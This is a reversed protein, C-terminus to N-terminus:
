EFPNSRARSIEYTEALTAVPSSLDIRLSRMILVVFEGRMKRIIQLRKEKFTVHMPVNVPLKAESNFSFVEM